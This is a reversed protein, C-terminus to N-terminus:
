SSTTTLALSLTREGYCGIYTLAIKAVLTPGVMSFGVARGGAGATGHSRQRAGDAGDGSLRLCGMDMSRGSAPQEFGYVVAGVLGSMYM